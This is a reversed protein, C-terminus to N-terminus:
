NSCNSPYPYPKREIVRQYLTLDYDGSQRHLNLSNEILVEKAVKADVQSDTFVNVMYSSVFINIYGIPTLKISEDVNASLCWPIITKEGCSIKTSQKNNAYTLCFVAKASDKPSM